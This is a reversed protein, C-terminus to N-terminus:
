PESQYAAQTTASPLGAVPDGLYSVVTGEAGSRPPLVGVNRALGSTLSASSAQQTDFTYVNYGDNEYVSFALRSASASLAPSMDTIGSVGTLLNTV